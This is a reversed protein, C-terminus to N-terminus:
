HCALINIYEDINVTNNRRGDKGPARDWRKKTANKDREM